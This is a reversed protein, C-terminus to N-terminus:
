TRADYTDIYDGLNSAAKDADAPRTRTVAVEAMEITADFGRIMGPTATEVEDRIAAWTAVILALSEDDGDGDAIKWSLASLEDLILALGADADTPVTTPPATAGAGTDTTAAEDDEIVTACGSATLVLVIACGIARTPSM